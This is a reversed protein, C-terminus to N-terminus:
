GTRKELSPLGCTREGLGYSGPVFFVIYDLCALGNDLQSQIVEIAQDKHFRFVPFELTSVIYLLLSVFYSFYYYSVSSFSM